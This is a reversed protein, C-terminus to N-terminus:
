WGSRRRWIGSPNVWISYRTPAARLGACGSQRGGSEVSKELEKIPNTIRSSIYSNILALIFLILAIIFVVIFVPKITNLTVVNEPTVGVVKWGTYGISKITVFRSSGDFEEMHNGDKYAAAAWM